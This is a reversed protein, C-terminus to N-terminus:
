FAVSCKGHTEGLHEMFQTGDFIRFGNKWIRYGKM